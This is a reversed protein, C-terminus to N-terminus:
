KSYKEQYSTGPPVDAPLEGISVWDPNKEVGSYVPVWVELGKVLASGGNKTIIEKAEILSPLKYGEFDALEKYGSWTKRDVSLM